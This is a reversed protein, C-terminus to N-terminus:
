SLLHLLVGLVSLATVFIGALALAYLMGRKVVVRGLEAPNKTVGKKSHVRTPPNRRMPPM